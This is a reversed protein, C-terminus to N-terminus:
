FRIPLEDAAKELRRVFEELNSRQTGLNIRLFGAGEEGFLTGENMAAKVSGLMFRQLADMSMGLKGSTLERCDLLPIYTAEPRLLKFQPARKKLQEELFVINGEIYRLMQEYWEEGEAYAARAAVLGFVNGGNIHMWGGVMREMQARLKANPVIYISAVLGAVNFTKSPAMLTISHERAWDNVMAFPVHKKGWFVLDSHIEDSIVLVNNRECIEAIKLLEERSFLRGTPNHPSCLILARSEKAGRELAEYDIEFRDGELKMPANVVRRGQAVITNRFPHYVPPMIMVGDGPATFGMLAAAVGCVVGPVYDCWDREVDWGWRKKEWAIFSDYYDEGRMPYGYVPHAAREAIARVVPEPSPFDMDAVWLPLVGDAGFRKKLGDWKECDTGLRNLPKDFDYIM